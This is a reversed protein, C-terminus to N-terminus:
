FQPQMRMGCITNLFVAVPMHIVGGGIRGVTREGMFTRQNGDIRIDALDVSMGEAILVAFEIHGEGAAVPAGVAVSFLGFVCGM